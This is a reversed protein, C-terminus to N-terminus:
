TQQSDKYKAYDTDREVVKQIAIDVARSTSTYNKFALWKLYDKTSPDVSVHVSVREKRKGMKTIRKRNKDKVGQRPHNVIFTM